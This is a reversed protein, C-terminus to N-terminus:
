IPVKIKPVIYALSGLYSMKEYLRVEALSVKRILRSFSERDFVMPEENGEGVVCGGEMDDACGCGVCRDGEEVAAVAPDDGDVVKEEEMEEVRRGGEGEEEWLSRVRLINLVWNGRQRNVAAAEEEERGGTKEEVVVEERGVELGGGGGGGPWLRWLPSTFLYSQQSPVVTTEVANGGGSAVRPAVASVKAPPHHHHGRADVGVALGPAAVGGILRLGDM